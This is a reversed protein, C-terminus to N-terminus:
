KMCHIVVQLYILQSYIINCYCQLTKQFYMGCNQQMFCVIMQRTLGKGFGDILTQVKNLFFLKPNSLIGTCRDFNYETMLGTININMLKNGPNNFYIKQLDSDVANGFDQIIPPSIGTSSVLYVYFRNIYTFGADHIKTIIWWDRGNGSQIAILCDDVWDNVIIPCKKAIVKGLGGNALIM